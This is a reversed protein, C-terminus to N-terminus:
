AMPNARRQQHSPEAESQGSARRGRCGQEAGAAAGIRPMEEVAAGSTAARPPDNNASRARARDKTNRAERGHGSRSRIRLVELGRERGGELDDAHLARLQVRQAPLQGLLPLAADASATLALRAASSRSSSLISNACSRSALVAASARSRSAATSKALRREEMCPRTMSASRSTTNPQWTMANGRLAGGFMAPLEAPEAEVEAAEAVQPPPSPPGQATPAMPAADSSAMNARGRTNRTPPELPLEM